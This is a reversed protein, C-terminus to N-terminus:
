SLGGEARGFCGLAPLVAGAPSAAPPPGVLAAALERVFVGRLAGDLEGLSSDLEARLEPDAAFAAAVARRHRRALPTAWLGERDQRRPLAARTEESASM